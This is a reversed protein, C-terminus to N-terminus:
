KPTDPVSSRDREPNKMDDFLHVNADPLKGVACGFFGLGLICRKGLRVYPLLGDFEVTKPEPHWDFSRQPKTCKPLLVGPRDSDDCRLAPPRPPQPAAQGLREAERGWDVRPAPASGTLGPPPPVVPPPPVAPRPVRSYAGAPPRAPPQVPPPPPEVVFVRLAAEEVLTNRTAVDVRATIVLLLLAGHGIAV